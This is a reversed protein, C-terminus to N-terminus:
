KRHELLACGSILALILALLLGLALLMLLDM